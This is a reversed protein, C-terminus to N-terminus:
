EEKQPAMIFRLRYETHSHFIPVEILIPYEQRNTIRINETKGSMYGSKKLLTLFKFLCKFFTMLKPSFQSMGAPGDEFKLVPFPSSEEYIGNKDKTFDYLDKFSQEIEPSLKRPFEILTHHGLDIVTVYESKGDDYKQYDPTPTTIM